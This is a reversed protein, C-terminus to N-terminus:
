KKNIRLSMSITKDVWEAKPDSEVGINYDLRSIDFISTLQADEEVLLFSVENSIGKLTFIGKVQYGTNTAVINNSKFEATPYNAIDFWDGEPLTQDYTSDGTKASSLYFKANISVQEAPPLILEAQWKAFVGKFSMGVHRGSFTLEGNNENAKILQAQALTGTTLLLVLTLVLLLDQTKILQM